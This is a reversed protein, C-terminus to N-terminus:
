VIGKARGRRQQRKRKHYFPASGAFGGFFWSARSASFLEPGRHKAAASSKKAAARSFM